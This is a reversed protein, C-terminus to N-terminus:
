PTPEKWTEVRYFPEAKGYGRSWAYRDDASKVMPEPGRTIPRPWCFSEGIAVEGFTRGPGHAALQARVHNAECTPRRAGACPGSQTPTLHDRADGNRRVPVSAGCVACTGSPLSPM